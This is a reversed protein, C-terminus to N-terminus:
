TTPGNALRWDREYPSFDSLVHHQTTSETESICGLFLDLHSHNFHDSVECVPTRQVRCVGGAHDGTLRAREMTGWSARHSSGASRALASVFSTTMTPFRAFNWVSM